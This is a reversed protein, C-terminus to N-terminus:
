VVSKRDGILARVQHLREVFASGAVTTRVGAAGREFLSVGLQDELQRVRRSATSQSIGLRRSAASFSRELAVQEVTAQAESVLLTEATTAARSNPTLTM